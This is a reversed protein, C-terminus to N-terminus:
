LQHPVIDQWYISRFLINPRICNALYMLASIAILYPVELGLTKEGVEQPRFPDKKVDLSRVVMPTSLPHAKDMHFHKLVKETYTSQHILIGNPLHEIQLALCFKTKGLDKM